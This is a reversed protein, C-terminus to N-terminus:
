RDWKNITEIFTAENAPKILEPSNWKIPNPGFSHGFYAREEKRTM